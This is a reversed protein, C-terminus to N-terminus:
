CLLQLRWSIEPVGIQYTPSYENENGLFSLIRTIFRIYFFFWLYKKGDLFDSVQKSLRIGLEECVMPLCTDVDGVQSCM